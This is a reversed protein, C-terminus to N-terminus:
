CSSGESIGKVSFTTNYRGSPKGSPVYLWFRLYVYNGPTINRGVKIYSLSLRKSTGYSPTDQDNNTANNWAVNDISISVGNCAGENCYLNTNAKLCFDENVNGTNKIWYETKLTGPSPTNNYNWTGNNWAAVDVDLQENTQSGQLNTFFIGESLKESLSISLSEIEFTNVPTVGWNNCTDNAYIKWGVITGPSVSSNQWTFNSWGQNMGILMPSGYATKNEWTGTENTSLVAYSIKGNDQWFAYLKVASQPNVPKSVNQGVNSYSPSVAEKRCCLQNGYYGCEGVHSNTSSNLSVVCTEGQLCNSRLHCVLPCEVCVHYQYNGEGYMEAHANTWNYMSITGNEGVDCSTKVHASTLFPDSCCTLNNYASCNGVHSNNAHFRSFLCVENSQCTNERLVCQLGYVTPLTLFLIVLIEVKEM